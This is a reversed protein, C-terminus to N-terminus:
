FLMVEWGQQHYALMCILAVEPLMKRKDLLLPCMAEM